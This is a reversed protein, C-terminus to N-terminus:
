KPPRHLSLSFFPINYRSPVHGNLVLNTDPPSVANYVETRSTEFRVTESRVRRFASAQIEM